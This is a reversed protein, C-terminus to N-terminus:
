SLVGVSIIVFSLLVCIYYCGHLACRNTFSIKVKNYCELAKEYQKCKFYRNGDMREENASALDKSETTGVVGNNKPSLNNTFSFRRDNLSILSICSEDAMMQNVIGELVQRSIKNQLLFITRDNVSEINTLLSEFQPHNKCMSKFEQFLYYAFVSNDIFHEHPKKMVNNAYSEPDSQFPKFHGSENTGFKERRIRSLEELLVKSPM